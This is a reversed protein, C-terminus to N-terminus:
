EPSVIFSLVKDDEDFSVLLYNDDHPKGDERYVWMALEEVKETPKGIAKLVESQTSGTIIGNVSVSKTGADPLSLLTKIKKKRFDSETSGSDFIVGAIIEGKYNITLNANEVSYYSGLKEVTLPATVTVGNLKIDLDSAKGGGSKCATLAFLIVAAM